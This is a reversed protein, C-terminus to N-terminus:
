SCARLQSSLTPKFILRHSDRSTPMPMYSHGENDEKTADGIGGNAITYVVHVGNASHEKGLGQAAM